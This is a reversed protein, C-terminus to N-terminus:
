KSLIGPSIYVSIIYDTIAHGTGINQSISPLVSIPRYNNFRTKDNSRHIPIVKATNIVKRPILQKPLKYIAIM